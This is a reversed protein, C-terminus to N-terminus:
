HQVTIEVRRNQPERVGDATPVRPQSEGKASVALASRPVGGAALLDAVADARRRSLAMNYADSGARDAHGVVSVSQWNCNAANSTVFQITGQADAPPIASDFDFFVIRPTTDNCVTSQAPPPPPPPPPPPASPVILMRAHFLVCKRISTADKTASKLYGLAIGCQAKADLAWVYRPDDANIITPENSAALSSDYLSQIQGRLGSVDMALLREADANEQAAAIGPLTGAAIVMAVAARRTWNWGM